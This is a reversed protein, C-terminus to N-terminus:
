GSDNDPDESEGRKQHPEFLARRLALDGLGDLDFPVAREIAHAREKSRFHTRQDTVPQAEVAAVAPGSRQAQNRQGQKTKEGKLHALPHPRSTKEDRGKASNRHHSKKPGRADRHILEAVHAAGEPAVEQQGGVGGGRQAGGAIGSDGDATRQQGHGQQPPDNEHGIREIRTHRRHQQASAKRSQEHEVRETDPDGQEIRALSIVVAIEAVIERQAAVDEQDAAHHQRHQQRPQHV